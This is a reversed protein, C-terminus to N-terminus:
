RQEARKLIKEITNSARAFDLATVGHFRAHADAGASVLANVISTNGRMAAAMLATFGDSSTVNVDARDLLRDVVEEHGSWSAAILATKGVKISTSPGCREDFEMGIEHAALFTILERNEAIGNRGMALILSSEFSMTNVDAGNAFLLDVIRRDGHSSAAMLATEGSNDKANVDAGAKLLIKVAEPHGWFSAMMLATAGQGDRANVDAGKAILFEVAEASKSGGIFVAEMLATKGSGGVRANVDAGAKLLRGVESIDGSHSADHAAKCLKRNLEELEKASVVAKPEAKPALRNGFERPAGEAGVAGKKEDMKVTM